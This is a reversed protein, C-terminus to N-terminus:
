TRCTTASTSTASTASRGSWTTASTWAAASATCTRSRRARRVQGPLRPGADLRAAPRRGPEAADAGPRRLEGAPGVHRRARLGQAGPRKFKEPVYVILPVHLGSNYPWRKSRPMGSGHDGYFFVITDDALGADELEKLLKGAQADMTPSTTTTSRGTRASRPRTPTIPPCASRPRTTSWRTRGRAFRARTASRSTSSRSSRSARSATRGTPRARRITGSRARSTSTTTRRATTPATTARARPPVASVDEHVAADAGREAHARRRHQDSLRRHHDDHPGPRLGARQVLRPSLAHGPRGAPRPEAHAAYADGYCGLQPGTDECTIWLINPLEKGGAPSAQWATLGSVLLLMSTALRM